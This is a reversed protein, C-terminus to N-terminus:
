GALTQELTTLGEDLQDDTVVLPPALRLVTNQTGNILLGKELCRNVVDSANDFWAGRAAPDLEIGIFLGRGRVDTVVPHKEAFKRLRAKIQEGALTARDILEDREIVEFMRAAVATAVCNGGLTTAHTVRGMHEVDFMPAAREGACMVGLALGCGVAKGLTMVDPEVDWHQYAFWKGTRGCGTWVEDAILLLDHEDCLSRLQGFYKEDPVNVGGEGQIPEAIIAITTEDLEAKVADIDNYAVNVFGPLLPEFGQRVTPSGTAGMTAFSRGHFSRTTSIIKFRGFEHTSKGRNAKGYLRALKVAAENADAGSHCFYSRGGFGKDAIHQALHTQPETHLLNGVHWLKNAQKTAATVLDEHCHGLIGAGFGSFLDLIANGEVDVIRCGAGSEIAIPWRPYNLTLHADHRQIIADTKTPKATQATSDAM